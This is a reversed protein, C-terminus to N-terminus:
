HFFRGNRLTLVFRKGDADLITVTGSGTLTIRNSRVYVAEWHDEDDEEDFVEISITKVTFRHAQTGLGWKAALSALFPLGLFTSRQM